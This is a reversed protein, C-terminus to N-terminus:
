YSGLDRTPFVMRQRGNSCNSHPVCTKHGKKSDLYLKKHDEFMHRFKKSDFTTASEGQADLLVQGLKDPAQEELDNEDAEDMLEDEFSGAEHIYALDPIEEEEENPGM